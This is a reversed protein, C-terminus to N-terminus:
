QTSLNSLYSSQSNMQSILTEMSTFQSIYRDQETSLTQQLKELDEQMQQLQKYIQNNTVSRSLKTSGAVEVLKGYSGGHKYAFRTAFNSLSDSITGVLGTKGDGSGCIIEAVKDPDDKMATRFKTEDFVLKGGSYVDDSASIGIEQLSKAIEKSNAGNNIVRVMMSQISTSLERMNSDNFLLGQKAKKEWNEISTESMEDKQADSLPGYDSDPRTTIETNVSDVLENYEEIFKKVRETAGDVDAQASFTVAKTTDLSGDDLYGFRGKVTLKLGDVDFTNTTSELTTPLGGYSVEIVANKGDTSTGKTVETGDSKTVVGGFIVAAASDKETQVERGTGTESAILAFKNESALYTAKVGAKSANIKDMMESLTSDATVEIKEGNIVLGDRLKDICDQKSAFKLKDWNDAISSDLGIKNSTSGIGLAKRVAKSGSVTLTTNDDAKALKIELAGSTDNVVAEVNGKGFAAELRKNINAAIDDISANEDDRLAKAEDETLLEIQKTQGGFTVSLTKSEMYDVITQKQISSDSFQKTVHKNFEDFGIGKSLDVADDGEGGVFGLGELASSSRVQLQEYYSHYPHTGDARADAEAIQFKGDVEVFKIVDKLFIDSGAATKADALKADSNQLAENLQDIFNGSTYDITVTEQRKEGNEEVTKTYSTPFTFSATNVFKGANESWAGFQITYGELLSTECKETQNVDGSITDLTVGNNASKGKEDSTLTASTAMNKVGLVSLYDLMSSSGTATIYKTVNSDGLVSIQNKSFFSSDILSTTSSYSFYKDEMDIIKDIVSQYAEQKWQLSTIENKKNNIKTTTGLTMQEILADRDIGSAMGGYGRLSTNGLGSAGSVSAM